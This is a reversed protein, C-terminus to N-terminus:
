GPMRRVPFQYIKAQPPYLARRMNEGFADVSALVQANRSEMYRLSSLKSGIESLSEPPGLMVAPSYVPNQVFESRFFERFSGRYEKQQKERALSTPASIDPAPIVEEAEPNWCADPYFEKELQNLADDNNLATMTLWDFHLQLKRGEDTLRKQEERIIDLKPIYYHTKLRELAELCGDLTEVGFEKHNRGRALEQLYRMAKWVAMSDDYTLGINKLQSDGDEVIDRIEGEVSILFNLTNGYPPVRYLWGPLTGPPASALAFRKLVEKKM